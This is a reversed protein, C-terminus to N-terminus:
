QQDSIGIEDPRDELARLMDDAFIAQDLFQCRHEAADRQRQMTVLLREDPSNPHDFVSRASSINRASGTPGTPYGPRRLLRVKAL